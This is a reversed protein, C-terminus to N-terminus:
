NTVTQFVKQLLDTTRAAPDQRIKQEEEALVHFMGTLAQKTVYAELDYDLMGGVFPIDAYKQKLTQYVQMAGAEQMQEAVVPRFATTLNTNTKDEFYRTAADDKGQLVQKVDQITMSKLADLFIPKALPAATEAARNMRQHLDDAISGMGMKDLLKVPAQLEQPLAIKIAENMWFGDKKGTFDVTHRLGIDLAEKLGANIDLNSLGNGSNNTSGTNNNSDTPKAKDTLVGGLQQLQESDLSDFLGATAPLPLLCLILALVKKM